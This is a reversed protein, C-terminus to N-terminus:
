LDSVQKCNTYKNKNHWIYFESNEIVISEVIIRDIRKSKSNEAILNIINGTYKINDAYISKIVPKLFIISKYINVQLQIRGIYNLQSNKDNYSIETEISPYIGKWNSNITKIQLNIASKKSILDQFFGPNDDIYFILLRSVSLSIALYIILILFFYKLIKM